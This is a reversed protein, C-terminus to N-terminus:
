TPKASTGVGAEVRERIGDLMTNEMVTDGIGFFWRALRATLTNGDSHLKARVRVHLRTQRAAERLLVFAWSCEISAALEDASALEYGTMPQRRSFLVLARDPELVRVRWVGYGEDARPGDPIVDGVALEQLSPVIVDASAVGGNDLPYWTYWGARGYGLQVIWPWVDAPEARILTSFNTTWSPKTVLDDGPLARAADAPTGNPVLLTPHRMGHAVYAAYTGFASTAARRVFPSRNAFTILQM